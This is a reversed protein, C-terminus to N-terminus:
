SRCEDTDMCWWEEQWTEVGFEGGQPITHFTWILEGTRINYGRVWTPPREKFRPRNSTIHQVVLVDGV